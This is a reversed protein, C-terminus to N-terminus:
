TNQTLLYDYQTKWLWLNAVSDSKIQIQVNTGSASLTFNGSSGTYKSMIDTTGVISTIGISNFFVGFFTGAENLTTSFWGNAKGEVSLQYGTPVNISAVTVFSTSTTSSSAGAFIRQTKTDTSNSNLILTGDFRATGIAHLPQQPSVTGMGINGNVIVFTSIGAIQNTNNWYSIQNASASGTVIGLSTASSWAAATGISTLINGTSGSSNNIDYLQAGLWLAFVTSFGSVFLQSLTGVSTIGSYTGSITSSPVTGTSLNSANLSTILSGSGSFTGSTTIGSITANGQVTLTQTVSSTGVGLSSGNFWLNNSGQISNASIGFAVQNLAVSGTITGGGGSGANTWAVGTVTSSLIQGAGGTSNSSDYIPGNFRAGGQVHLNQTPTATGIGLNNNSYVFTSIGTINSASAFYAIQSAAASGSITGSGASTWALGSATAALVQGTTGSNNNNDFFRGTLRIGNQIHLSQTPTATGIGVSGAAGVTVYNTGSTTADIQLLNATQSAFGAIYLGRNGAALTEIHERALPTFTGIGQDTRTANTAGGWAGLNSATPVVNLGLAIQYQGTVSGGAGSGVFANNSGTTITNGARYGLAVNNAGTTLATLAQYGAALNNAGSTSGDVGQLAERGIAVNFNSNLYRAAFIGLVVNNSGTLNTTASGTMAAYGIVTNSSSNLYQGAQYGAVVNFSGTVFTISSGQMSQRGIIVNSNGSLYQAASFGIVVSGAATISTTITGTLAQYGIVTNNSANLYQGAQYGIAVSFQGAINNSFAQFGVTTNTAPTNGPGLGVTISNILADGQVALINTPNLTGIGVSGLGTIVFNNSGIIQNANNWYAIQTASASGTVLGLQVPTSWAVGSSTSTLINGLSGRSNNIDFVSSRYYISSVTTIGAVSLNTVIGTSAVITTTTTIGSVNLQSLTGVSTIGSYTGSIRASPVTGSALNSANLNTLNTGPGFFGVSTVFGSVNLQSLTGVSTIGSYTGTIVSSPVTGSALNSANLNTLNTGPGFFGVSTVFGSVNLQSLTGVSTIGSYAGTIVSSPVTGFNLSSANLNTLNSGDGFFFGSTIIGSVNLQSLTGVSTIGSYTGSIVSSPVTGSVLNSANLNTLNTGPGFFGTSTVFGSIYVDGQVTLSYSPSSTGIGLNSGTFWFNNSGTLSNAGSAYAVQGSSITGSFTGVPVTWAIGTGTSTLVSGALGINNSSDYIGGTIRTNGQVHLLQTPNPTGIGVSGLNTYVFTSFGGIKNANNWVAIQNSAGTGTVIGLSTVSSWAIGSSLSTLINGSLGSSNTSDYLSDNIRIGNQIHLSQTPTPTGIGMSGFGNVVIYNTGSTTADIQLLNATQSAFGAIYLGINGAALTEIHERALPTFTGIGQDTRTANTNGGWAGQNSAPASVGYGIAIQYSGTPSVSSNGGVLTNNSGTTINNGAVFGLATNNTGTTLLTLAQYGIAVNNPGTSSGDVGQLAERGIAVNASSNLFRAAFTGVAINSGGTLPNAQTGAMASYGFIANAGGSTYQGAKFGIAVTNSSSSFRLVERGIAVNEGGTSNQAALYGMAVNSEASSIQLVQFGIAVNAGSNNSSSAQYGVVTNTTQGAGLGITLNNILVDGQVTLIKAPSNTGIGVSGIGNVTVYNVGSTTADIQLLNANQSAFGAIYLGRNGAALTEIHNRALSTFTGIGLDTRTVNTNGGWAGLNSATPAVGYGIAIQYSGSSAVQAGSGIVVSNSASGINQAAQHGIAVNDSGTIYISASGQLAFNGLAVNNSANLYQGARVGIAISNSLSTSNLLAQYGVAIANISSANNLLADRGLALNTPYSAPGLGVTITHITADTLTVINNIPLNINITSGDDTIYSTGITNTSTFKLVYNAIGSGTIIGLSSPNTWAIGSSTSSLIQQYTGSSNNFDYLQGNIKLINTILQGSIPYIKVSPLSSIGTFNGVYDTYPGVFYQQNGVTGMGGFQLVPENSDYWNYITSRLDYANRSFVYSGVGSEYWKLDIQSISSNNSSFGGPTILINKSTNIAM